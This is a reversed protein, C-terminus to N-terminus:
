PTQQRVLVWPSAQTKTQKKKDKPKTKQNNPRHSGVFCVSTGHSSSFVPVTSDDFETTQYVITPQQAPVQPAPSSCSAYTSRRLPPQEAPPKVELGPDRGQPLAPLVAVTFYSSLLVWTLVLTGNIGM